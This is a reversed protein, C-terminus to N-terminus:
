VRVAQGDRMPGARCALWTGMVNVELVRLDAASLVNITGRAQVGAITM